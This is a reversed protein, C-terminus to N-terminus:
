PLPEESLTEFRISYGCAAHDFVASEPDPTPANPQAFRFRHLDRLVNLPPIPLVAGPLADVDTEIGRQVVSFLKAGIPSLGVLVLERGKKQVILEFPFDVDEAWVTVRERIALDGPIEETSRIEGPCDPIARPAFPLGSCAATFLLAICAAMGRPAAIRWISTRALRVVRKATSRSIAVGNRDVGCMSAARLACVRNSDFDDM